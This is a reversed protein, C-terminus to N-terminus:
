VLLRFGGRYSSLNLNGEIDFTLPDVHEIFTPYRLVRINRSSKKRVLVSQKELKMMSGYLYRPEWVRNRSVGWDVEGKLWNGFRGEKIHEPVWHIQDNASVLKDVISSTRVYWAPIAVYILPTDSRPCFPYSHQIVEQRYLSGRQKLFEIISKDAEKVHMWFFRDCIRWIQWRSRSPMCHM